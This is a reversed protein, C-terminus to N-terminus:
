ALCAGGSGEACLIMSEAAHVALGGTGSKRHLTMLRYRILIASRDLCEPPEIAVRTIVGTTAYEEGGCLSALVYLALLVLGRGHPLLPMPAVLEVTVRDAGFRWVRRHSVMGAATVIGAATRSSMRQQSEPRPTPQWQLAAMNVARRVGSIARAEPSMVGISKMSMSSTAGTGAM